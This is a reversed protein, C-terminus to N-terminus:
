GTSTFEQTAVRAEAGGEDEEVAEPVPAKYLTGRSESYRYRGIRGMQERLAKRGGKAVTKRSQKAEGEDTTKKVHIKILDLQWQKNGRTLFVTEGPELVLTQCDDPGPDCKGDGVVEVGADVIFVASERDESLGLYLVAPNTGGPLGSLRKVNRTKLTDSETNGFRVQLSYLDFTKKPTEPVDVTPDVTTGPDKTQSGADTSGSAGKEVTTATGAMSDKVKPVRKLRAPRFPDKRSGLVARVKDREGADSVTVVSDSVDAGVPQVATAPPLVDDESADSSLLFPVAVLAAVLLLAIPWLKREVLQKFPDTLANM